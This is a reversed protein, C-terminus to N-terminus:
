AWPRRQQLRSGRGRGQAHLLGTVVRACYRRQARVGQEGDRLAVSLATLGVAARGRNRITRM